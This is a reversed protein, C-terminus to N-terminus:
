TYIKMLNTYLLELIDWNSTIPGSKKPIGRHFDINTAATFADAITRLSTRAVTALFM